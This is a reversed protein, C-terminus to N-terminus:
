RGQSRYKKIEETFDYGYKEARLAGVSKIKRFEEMTVPQKICMDELSSNTFIVYAPVGAEEALRLRLAKLRKMLERDYAPTQSSEEEAQEAEAPFRVMVREQNKLVRAASKNMYVVPYETDTIGLYSRMILEDIIDKIRETGVEEM